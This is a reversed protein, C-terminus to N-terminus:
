PRIGQRGPGTVPSPDPDLPLAALEDHALVHHGRRVDRTTQRRRHPNRDRHIPHGDCRDDIPLATRGDSTSCFLQGDADALPRLYTQSLRGRGGSLGM